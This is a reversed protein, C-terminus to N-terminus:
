GSWFPTTYKKLILQIINGFLIRKKEIKTKKQRVTKCEFKHNRFSEHTVLLLNISSFVRCRNNFIM